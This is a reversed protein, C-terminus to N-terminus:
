DRIGAALGIGGLLGPLRALGAAGGRRSYSDEVRAGNPMMYEGTVLNIFPGGPGVRKRELIERIWRGEPLEYRGSRLDELWQQAPLRRPDYADTLRWARAHPNSASRTDHIRAGNPMM